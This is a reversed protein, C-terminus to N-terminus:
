NAAVEMIAAAFAAPAEQPLSHGTAGPLHRHDPRVELRASNIPAELSGRVSADDDVVLVLPEPQPM